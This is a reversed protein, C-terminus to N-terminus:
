HDGRGIERRAEGRALWLLLPLAFGIWHAGIKVAAVTESAIGRVAYQDLVGDARDPEVLRDVPLLAALLAAVWLVGGGISRLLPADPGVAFAFLAAVLLFFGVPLAANGGGLVARVERAFLAAIM